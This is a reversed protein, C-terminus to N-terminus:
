GDTDKRTVLSLGDIGIKLEVYEVGAASCADAEEPEIPRSADSIDTEGDCFLEFGDGTGPGDVSVAASPNEASFTEAVFSVIPQVTSSGSVVVDGSSGGEAGAPDRRSGAWVDLTEEWAPDTLAVYGTDDVAQRGEDSLLADVFAAVAEDEAASSLNVYVFLDRALPYRGSAIADDTPEVCQGDQGEVAFTRITDENQSAFAHGV